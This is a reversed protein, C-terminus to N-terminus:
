SALVIIIIIFFFFYIFLYIFLIIIIVSSLNVQPFFRVLRSCSIYVYHIFPFSSSYKVIAVSFKLNQKMSSVM